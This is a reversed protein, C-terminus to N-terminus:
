TVDTAQPKRQCIRASFHFLRLKYPTQANHSCSFLINICVCVGMCVCIYAHLFWRMHQNANLFCTIIYIMKLLACEGALWCARRRFVALSFLLSSLTIRSQPQWRLQQHKQQHSNINDYSYPLWQQQKQMTATAVSNLYRTAAAALAPTLQM